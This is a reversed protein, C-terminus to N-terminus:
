TGRLHNHVELVQVDPPETLGVRRTAPALRDRVFAEAQDRDMWVDVMRIGTPTAAVSHFLMGLAARGADDLGLHGLVRDYGDLGVGPFDLVVAVAM